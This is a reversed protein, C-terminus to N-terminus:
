TEKKVFQALIAGAIIYSVFDYAFAIAAFRWPANWWIPDGLTSYVSAALGFLVVAIMRQTYGPLGGAVAQLAIGLLFATVLIHIFGQVMVMPEMMDAGGARYMILARPGSQHRMEFDTLSAEDTGTLGPIMYAGDGPMNARMASGVSMEASPNLSAFPQIYLSGYGWFLWGWVFIAIATVVAGIVLKM